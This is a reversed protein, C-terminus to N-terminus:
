KKEGEICEFRETLNSNIVTIDDVTEDIMKIITSLAKGVFLVDDNKTRKYEQRLFIIQSQILEKNDNLDKVLMDLLVSGKIAEIQYEVNESAGNETGNIIRGRTDNEM